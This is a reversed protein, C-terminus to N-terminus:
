KPKNESIRTKIIEPNTDQDMLFLLSLNLISNAATPKIIEKKPHVSFVRYKNCLQLLPEHEDPVINNYAKKNDMYETILQGLTKDELENKSTPNVIYMLKLLRSEVASVSMAVCSYYCNENYTHIAENIREKEENDFSSCESKIELQVAQLILKIIELNSDFYEKNSMLRSDELKSIAEYFNEYNELTRPKMIQCLQACRKLFMSYKQYAKTECFNQINCYTTKGNDFYVKNVSNSFSECLKDTNLINSIYDFSM